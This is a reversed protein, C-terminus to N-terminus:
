CCGSNDKKKTGLSVNNGMGSNIGQKIGCTDNSLDYFGDDIKQAIAKASSNFIEEVNFGTKASTEFFMMGNKNALEIGEEYKVARKDDLDSKNGVLVLFVTKPSQNKCDEIWTQVNTFTDRNTIDYVVMACVSNKYYARTISRFNEQGATDWIQIRYIKSNITINKAGFEVGITAQYDDNFKNHAYQLLLNSKGVASDGIIIYKFLYHFNVSSTM